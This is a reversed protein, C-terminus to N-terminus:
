QNYIEWKEVLSESNLEKHQWDGTKLLGTIGMDQIANTFANNFGTAIGWSRLKYGSLIPMILKRLESLFQDANHIETENRIALIVITGFSYESLPKLPNIRNHFMFFVDPPMKDRASQNWSPAWVETCIHYRQDNPGHNWKQNSKENLSLRGFRAETKHDPEYQTSRVAAKGRAQSTLTELLPSIKAWVKKDWIPPANADCIFFYTQYEHEYYKM